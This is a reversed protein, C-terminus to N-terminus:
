PMEHRFPRHRGLLLFLSAGAISGGGAVLMYLGFHDVMRLTIGLLLSGLMASIALSTAVLGLVTSYVDIKFFRMVLYAALDSEAGLSLGMILVASALIFPTAMGSSLMFLGFGPLGMAIAAVYHVPFRDLCLGCAFRGLMVGTAFVSILLTAFTSSAGQELLMLKMQSSQLPYILNSLLFGGCIIWFAPMRLIDPYVESAPRRPRAAQKTDRNATATRPILLITLAGCIGVYAAVAFYGARWGYTEICAHLVPGGVIGIAAPATATIALALGRASVFKEAILRSYVTSSTTATALLNQVVTIAAFMFISGTMMGFAIFTLPFATVGVLAIRRVGFIDVFRGVLPISFLTLLGVVGVLAFDSKKWGFEDLLHPAFINSIYHNLLYGSGMGLSASVLPRWNQRIEGLYPANVAGEMNPGTM